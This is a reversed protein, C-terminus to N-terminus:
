KLGERRRKLENLVSTLEERAALFKDKKMYDTPDGKSAALYENNVKLFHEHLDDKSLITLNM